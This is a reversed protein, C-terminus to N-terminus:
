NASVKEAAIPAATMGVNSAKKGTSRTENTLRAKRILEVMNVGQKKLMCNMGRPLGDLLQLDVKAELSLQSRLLGKFKPPERWYRPLPTPDVCFHGAEAAKIKVFHSKFGKYSATYSTFLGTNPLPALQNISERLTTTSASPLVELVLCVVKFAQIAAWGNPHLQSPAIGLMHLVDVEFFDFPLTVGFDLFVTEYMYVFPEEGAKASHCVREKKGCRVM